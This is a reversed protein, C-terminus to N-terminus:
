TPLLLNPMWTSKSPMWEGSPDCFKYLCDTSTDNVCCGVRWIEIWDFEHKALALHGELSVVIYNPYDGVVNSKPSNRWLHSLKKEFSELALSCLTQDQHHCRHHPHQPLL